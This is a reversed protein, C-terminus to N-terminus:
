LLHSSMTYLMFCSSRGDVFESRSVNNRFISCEFSICKSILRYRVKSSPMRFLCIIEQDGHDFAIYCSSLLFSQQPISLVCYFQWQKRGLRCRSRFVCFLRGSRDLGLLLVFCSCRGGTIRRLSRFCLRLTFSCWDEWCRRRFGM